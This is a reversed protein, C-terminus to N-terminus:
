AVTFNLDPLGAIHASVRAGRDVPGVGSPTGLFILDGPELPFFRSVYAITRATSWIMDGLDGAQRIAGDVSLGIAGRSPHGVDAAPAIAGLPATAVGNKAWDWPQGAAKAASQLDRRTMDVGVAYGWVHDLASAEPIAAGGRGIAAVLEVEHHWDTTEPPYPIEDANTAAEAWKTFFPLADVDVKSRMEAIHAHYNRGLCILRRVPWDAGTSTRVVVPPAPSPLHM